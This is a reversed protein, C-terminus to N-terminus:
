NQSVASILYGVIDARQALRDWGGGPRPVVMSESLASKRASVSPLVGSHGQEGNTIAARADAAAAWLFRIAASSRTDTASRAARWSRLKRRTDALEDVHVDIESNLDDIIGAQLAVTSRLASLREREQADRRVLASQLQTKLEELKVELARRTKTYSANRLLLQTNADQEKQLAVSLEGELGDLQRITIQLAGSEREKISVERSLEENMRATNASAGAVDPPAFQDEATTDADHATDSATMSDRVRRLKRVLADRLKRKDADHQQNMRELEAKSAASREEALDRLRQLERRAGNARLSWEDAENRDASLRRIEASMEALEVANDVARNIQTDAFEKRAHSIAHRLEAQGKALQAAEAELTRREHAYSLVLQDSLQRQAAASTRAAAAQHQMDAAHRLLQREVQPFARSAAQFYLLVNPDPTPLVEAEAVPAAEAAPAKKPPM